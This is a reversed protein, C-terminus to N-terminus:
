RGRSYLSYCLSCCLSLWAFSVCKRFDEMGKGAGPVGGCTMGFNFCGVNFTYKGQGSSRAFLDVVCSDGVVRSGSEIEIDPSFLLCSLAMSQALRDCHTTADRGKLTLEFAHEPIRLVDDSIPSSLASWLLYHKCVPRPRGGRLWDFSPTPERASLGHPSSFDPRGQRPPLRRLASCLSIYIAVLLALACRM